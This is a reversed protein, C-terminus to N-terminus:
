LGWTLHLGGPTPVITLERHHASRRHLHPVFYGILGGLVYGGIVDTPYHRGGRVRLFGTVAPISAAATWVVPKWPSDPHYDSFVKAVFFTNAATMSTHGSVFSAKANPTLKKDTATIQDFVFPRPREFLYKTVLTAGANILVTESYLVVLTPFDERMERGALLTFPLVHSGYWLYNSAEHAAQSHWRTAIRDFPNIDHPDLTTLEDTTFLPTRTRLYAGLGLSAGGAAYYAAEQPWHIRYPSQADVPRGGLLFFLALLWGTARYIIM